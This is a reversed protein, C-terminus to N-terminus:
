LVAGAVALGAKVQPGGVAGAVATGAQGPRSRFAASVGAIALGLIGFNILAFALVSFVVPGGIKSALAKGGEAIYEKIKDRIGEITDWIFQAFADPDLLSSAINGPLDRILGPLDTLGPITPIISDETGSEWKEGLVISLYKQTHSPLKKPDGSWTKLTGEGANYGIIAKVWGGVPGGYQHIMRAMQKAAMDLSALPDYPNVGWGRATTPMMQAIGIEGSGGKRHGSIVDEAFNASELKIQRYFREPDIGYRQAARRTEAPWDPM